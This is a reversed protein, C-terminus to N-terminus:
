DKKKPSRKPDKKRTRPIRLRERRKDLVSSTNNFLKGKPIKKDGKAAL